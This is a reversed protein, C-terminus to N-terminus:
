ESFDYLQLEWDEKAIIMYKESFAIDRVPTEDEIEWFPADDFSSYLSTKNGGGIAMHFGDFRICSVKEVGTELKRVIQNSRRYWVNVVGNEGFSGGSIIRDGRMQVSTIAKNHGYLTSVSGEKRLDWIKITKDFSGSALYCNPYTDNEPFMELVEENFSLASVAQTHGKLTYAIKGARIDFGEINNSIAAVVIDGNGNPQLTICKVPQDHLSKNLLTATTSHIDMLHVSGDDSGAFLRDNV